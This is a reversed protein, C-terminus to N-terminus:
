SFKTQDEQVTILNQLLLRHLLLDDVMPNVVAAAIKKNLDLFTLLEKKTFVYIMEGKNLKPKFKNLLAVSSFVPFYREGDSGEMMDAKEIESCALLEENKKPYIAAFFIVDGSMFLTLDQLVKNLGEQSLPAKRKNLLADLQADNEPQYTNTYKKMNNKELSYELLYFLFICRIKSANYLIGNKSNNQKISQLLVIIKM